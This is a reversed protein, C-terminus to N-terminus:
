CNHKATWVTTSMKYTRRIESTPQPRRPHPLDRRRTTKKRRQLMSTSTRRANGHTTRRAGDDSLTRISRAYAHRARLTATRNKVVSDSWGPLRRIIINTQRKRTSGHRRLKGLRSATTVWFETFDINNEPTSTPKAAGDTFMNHNQTCVANGRRRRCVRHKRRTSCCTTNACM